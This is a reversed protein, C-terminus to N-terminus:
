ETAHTPEVIRYGANPSWSWYNRSLPRANHGSLCARAQQETTRYCRGERDRVIVNTKSQATESTSM